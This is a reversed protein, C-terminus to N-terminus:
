ASGTPSAGLEQQLFALIEDPPPGALAPALAWVAAAAIGLNAALLGLGAVNGASGELSQGVDLAYFGYAVLMSLVAGMFLTFFALTIPDHRSRVDLDTGGASGATLKVFVFPRDNSRLIRVQERRLVLVALGRGYHMLIRRRSALHLWPFFPHFRDTGARLRVVCEEPSLSTRLQLIRRNM